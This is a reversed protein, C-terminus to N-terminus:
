VSPPVLGTRLRRAEALAEDLARMTAQLQSLTPDDPVPDLTAPRRNPKEDAPPDTFHVM